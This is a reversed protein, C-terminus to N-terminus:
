KLWYGIIAGIVTGGVERNGSVFSFVAFGVLLISLILRGWAKILDEKSTGGPQDGLHMGGFAQKTEKITTGFLEVM